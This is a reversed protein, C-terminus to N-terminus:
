YVPIILEYIVTPTNYKQKFSFQFFRIWISIFHIWSVTKFKKSDKIHSLVVMLKYKIKRRNDYPM